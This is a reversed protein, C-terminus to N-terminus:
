RMRRIEGGRGVVVECWTESDGDWRRVTEGM